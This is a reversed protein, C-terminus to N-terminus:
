NSKGDVNRCEPGLSVSKMAFSISMQRTLSSFFFFIRHGPLFAFSFRSGLVSIKGKTVYKDPYTTQLHISPLSSFTRKCPPAHLPNGFLHPALKTRIKELRWKPTALNPKGCPFKPTSLIETTTFEYISGM